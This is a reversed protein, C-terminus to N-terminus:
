QVYVNTHYKLGWCFDLLVTSMVPVLPCHVAAQLITGLAHLLHGLILSYHCIDTILPTNLSTM